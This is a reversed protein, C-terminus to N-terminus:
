AIKKMAKLHHYTHYITFLLIERITMKGLAPHLLVYKDLDSDKWKELREHLRGGVSRWFVLFEEQSMVSENQPSFGGGSVLGSALATHYTQVIENYNRSPGKPKGFMRLGLKSAGLAKVIPKTSRILHDLNEAISWKEDISKEFTNSDIKEIYNQVENLVIFWAKQIENKEYINAENM